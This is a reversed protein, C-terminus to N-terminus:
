HASFVVGHEDRGFRKIRFMASIQILPNPEQPAYNEAIITKFLTGDPFIVAFAMSDRPNFKITQVMGDGDIKIFSSNVPNPVDDIAARFTMAQANPNNSILLNAPSSTTTGMANQLEVYVYQYFSILSGKGNNLIQNPLILNILEIEYLLNENAVHKSTLGNILPFRNDYSWQLILFSQNILCHKFSPSVTGSSIRFQSATTLSVSFPVYVEAGWVLQGQITPHPLQEYRRILRIEGAAPGNMITIFLNNYYGSKQVPHQDITNGTNGFYIVNNTISNLAPFVPTFVGWNVYRVIRRSTQPSSFQINSGVTAVPNFGRLEQRILQKTNVQIFDKGLTARNTGSDYGIITEIQGIAGGSIMRIQSGNFYNDFDTVVTASAVETIAPLTVTFNNVVGALTIADFETFLIELYSGLLSNEDTILQARNLPLNFSFNNYNLSNLDAATVGAGANYDLRECDLIPKERRISYTDGLLWNSVPGSNATSSLSGSTDISLLHTDRDFDKIPRSECQTQNYLISNVYYNNASPSCPVFFLADRYNSTAVTADGSLDTPDIIVFRTTGLVLPTSFGSTVTFEARDDGLYKYDIIRRRNNASTDFDGVVFTAPDFAKKSDILAMIAGRYYNEALQLSGVGSTNGAGSLDKTNIELIISGTANGLRAEPTTGPATSLEVCILGSQKGRTFPTIPSLKRTNFASSVWTKEASAKSVPDISTKGTNKTGSQSIDVIFKAPEPYNMRDRRSSTLEIFQNVNKENQPPHHRNLELKQTQMNLETYERLNMSNSGGPNVYTPNSPNFQSQM